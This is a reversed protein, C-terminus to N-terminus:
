EYFVNLNQQFSEADTGFVVTDDAYLLVLIKLFDDINGDPLNLCIGNCNMNQMYSELDNLFLSFLVPSLNEGQQVGCYSQFFFASQEGSHSVCSKIDKYLNYIIRFMEWPRRKRVTEGMTRYAM